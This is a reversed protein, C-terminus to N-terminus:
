NHNQHSLADAEGAQMQKLNASLARANANLQILKASAESTSWEKSLVAQLLEFQNLFTAYTEQMRKDAGVPLPFQKWQFAAIRACLSRAAEDDADTSSLLSLTSRLLSRLQELSANVNDFAESDIEASPAAARLDPSRPRNENVGSRTARIKAAKVMGAALIVAALVALLGALLPQWQKAVAIWPDLAAWTM